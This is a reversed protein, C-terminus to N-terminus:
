SKTLHTYSVSTYSNWANSTATRAAGTLGYHLGLELIDNNNAIGDANADGPWICNSNTFLFYSNLASSYTTVAVDTKSDNNFDQVFIREHYTFSVSNSYTVASNLNNTGSNFYVNLWPGFSILDNKGDNNFDGSSLGGTPNSIISQNTPFIGAGNGYYVNMNNSLHSGLAVDFNGDNNFDGSTIHGIGVGANSYTIPSNFNGNGIGTCLCFGGSLSYVIDLKGDNDFDESRLSYSKGSTPLNIPTSFNGNGNGLLVNVGSPFQPIYAIDLNGDSNFDKAIADDAMPCNQNSTYVTFTGNGQGILVKLPATNIDVFDLNGDNNFDGSVAACPYTSTSPTPVTSYGGSVQLLIYNGNSSLQIFDTKGDNNFDGICSTFKSNVSVLSILSPTLACNQAKFNTFAFFALIIFLTKKM